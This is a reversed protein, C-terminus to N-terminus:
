LLLDLGKSTGIRDAGAKILEEALQRTAIGGAAKIKMNDPLHAKLFRVQEVTVPHGNFGTGTKVFDVGSGVCVDILSLIEQQTLLGTEFIIKLTQGRLHTARSISEIDRSVHTWNGSKVAAINAVADIEDVGEDVARKIEESKAVIASYGFPFGVVTVLKPTRMGEGLFRRADRVYFPPICVGGFGAQLAKECHIKIAALSADPQLLTQEIKSALNMNRRAAISPKSFSNKPPDFTAFLPLQNDESFIPATM